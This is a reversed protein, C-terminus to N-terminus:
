GEFREFLKEGKMGDERGMEQIRKDMGRNETAVEEEVDVDLGRLNAMM